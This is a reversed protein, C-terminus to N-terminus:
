QASLVLPLHALQPRVLGGAFISSREHLQGGDSAGVDVAEDGGSLECGLLGRTLDEALVADLVLAALVAVVREGVAEDLGVDPLVAGHHGGNVEAVVFDASVVALGDTATGGPLGFGSEVGGFDAQLDVDLLGAVLLASAMFEATKRAVAGADLRQVDLDNAFVVEASGLLNGLHM